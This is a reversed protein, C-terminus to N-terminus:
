YSGTGLKMANPVGNNILPKHTNEMIGRYTMRCMSPMSLASYATNWCVECNRSYTEAHLTPKPMPSM